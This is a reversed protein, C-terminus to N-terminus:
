PGAESPTAANEKPEASARSEARGLEYAEILAVKIMDVYDSEIAAFLAEALDVAKKEM